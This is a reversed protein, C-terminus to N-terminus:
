EQCCFLYSPKRMWQHNTVLIQSSELIFCLEGRQGVFLCISASHYKFLTCAKTLWHYSILIRKLLFHLSTILDSHHWVKKNLKKIQKHLEELLDELGEVRADVTDMVEHSMEEVEQRIMKDMGDVQSPSSGEPINGEQNPSVQPQDAPYLSDDRHTYETSRRGRFHTTVSGFDGARSCDPPPDDYDRFFQEIQNSNWSKIWDLNKLCSIEARSCILSEGHCCQSWLKLNLKPIRPSACDVYGEDSQQLLFVDPQVRQINDSNDCIVRALTTQRIEALQSPEFVGPNEYYFRNCLWSLSLKSVKSHSSVLMQKYYRYCPLIFVIHVKSEGTEM